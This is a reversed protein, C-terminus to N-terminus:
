GGINASILRVVARSSFNGISVFFTICWSSEAKTYTCEASITCLSTFTLKIKYFIYNKCDGHIYVFIDIKVNGYQLEWLRSTRYQIWPKLGKDKSAARLCRPQHRFILCGTPPNQCPGCTGCAPFFVLFHVKMPCQCGASGPERFVEWTAM